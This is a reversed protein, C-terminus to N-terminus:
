GPPGQTLGGSHAQGHHRRADEDDAASAALVRQGPLERVLGPDVTHDNCRPGVPDGGLRPDADHGLRIREVRLPQDFDGPTVGDLEGHDARLGRQRGADGIGEIPSAHGCEPRRTLGCPDFRGLGEAVLDSQRGPDRHSAARCKCVELRCAAEGGLERVSAAPDDDLGVSQCRALPDEHAVVQRGGLVRKARQQRGAARLPDHDLLPQETALRTQDHKGVAMSGQSQGCRTVVLPQGIAVDARVGAAHTRVRGHRVQSVLEDFLDDSADM